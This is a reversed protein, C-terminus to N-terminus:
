SALQASQVPIQYQAFKKRQRQPIMAKIQWCGQEDVLERMVAHRAYLESRLSGAAPPFRLWVPTAKVDFYQRLAKILLDLGQACLASIWVQQIDGHRDLCVNPLIGLQDTKNYVMIQPLDLAQIRKLVANVEAVNHDRHETSADVIHLLLDAERTEELTAYFAEILDPPLDQIFGVTDALVVHQARSIRMRRLTPDLTAFLKDASYASADTLANFLTSKGANTYGVIAVTPITAKRRAARSQDRQQRLKELRKSIQKIRQRILRRDSELQKEGPGRLGIGGKQRELHSWGRVLRTSLFKMQALEVQLKGEYSRARQAFIDLILGTRDLVRKNYIKELNRQQSSSLSYNFIIIDADAFHALTSIEAVKGGGILFKADPVDRYVSIVTVIEAGASKVLERFENIDQNQAANRFRVHILIAREGTDPREFM